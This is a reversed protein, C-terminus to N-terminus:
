AQNFKSLKSNKQKVPCARELVDIIKSYANQFSALVDVEASKKSGRETTETMGSSDIIEKLEDIKAEYYAANKIQKDLLKRKNDDIGKYIGNLRKLNDDISTGLRRSEDPDIKLSM